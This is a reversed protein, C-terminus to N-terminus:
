KNTIKTTKAEHPAAGILAGRQEDGCAMAKVPIAAQNGSGRRNRHAPAHTYIYIYIHICM